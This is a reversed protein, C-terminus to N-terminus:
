KAGLLECTLKDACVKEGKIDLTSIDDIGQGTNLKFTFGSWAHGDDNHMEIGTIVLSYARGDYYYWAEDGPTKTVQETQFGNKCGCIYDIKSGLCGPVKRTGKCGMCVKTIKGSARCNPCPKTHFGILEGCGGCAGCMTTVLRLMTPRQKTLSEIEDQMYRIIESVHVGMYFMSTNMKDPALAQILLEPQNDMSLLSEVKDM